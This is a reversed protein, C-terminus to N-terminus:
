RDTFDTRQVTLITYCAERAAPSADNMRARAHDASECATVLSAKDFAAEHDYDARHRQEQLERFLRLSEVLDGACLDLLPGFRRLANPVPAAPNHALVASRDVIAEAIRDIEGHTWTRRIANQISLPSSSLLHRAAQETIEHFVAYYAASVGRRLDVEPPPGLGGEGALRRAHQLLAEPQIM